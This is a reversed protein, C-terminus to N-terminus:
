RIPGPVAAAEPKGGGRGDPEQLAALAAQLDTLAAHLRALWDPATGRIGPNAALLEAWDAPRVTLGALHLTGPHGPERTLVRRLLAPRLTGACLEALLVADYLDKARARDGDAHLWLLKWALSLEPSATRVVSAGSRDGRPVATRVPAEPLREDRAFDVTVVGSRPGDPGDATWRLSVRVGPRGDDDAYVWSGADEVSDADLRVGPAAQPHRRVLERLMLHPGEDEPEAAPVWQLGEPPVHVRIGGTDFEEFTWIEYAGAGDAVEPWQQVAAPDPLYPYPDLGDIPVLTSPPVVWDLDAPERAASGVWAPMVMSGRLVLTEAWPSDAILALLHDLVARRIRHPDSEM